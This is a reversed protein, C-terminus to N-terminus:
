QPKLLWGQGSVRHYWQYFPENIVLTGNVALYSYTPLIKIDDVFVTDNVNFTLSQHLGANSKVGNVTVDLQLNTDLQNLYNKM